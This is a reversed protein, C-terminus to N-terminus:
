AGALRYGAEEVADRVRAPEVPGDSTVRLAGSDLDVDVDTVNPIETVEETVSSACHSCTMGDVTYTATTDSTM